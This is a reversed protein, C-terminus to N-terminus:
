VAFGASPGAGSGSKGVTERGGSGGSEWVDAAFLRWIGETVGCGSCRDFWREGAACEADPQGGPRCVLLLSEQAARADQRAPNRERALVLGASDVCGGGGTDM